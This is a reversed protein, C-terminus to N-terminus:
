IRWNSPNVVNDDDCAFEEFPFAPMEKKIELIIEELQRHNNVGVIIKDVEKLDYIFRLAAQVPSVGVEDLKNRYLILRPKIQKFYDPLIHPDMLLLGQLFASRVHIEINNRKLKGLYGNHILRQDLINIPLQIIDIEHKELIKDIQEGTYISIGIKEVLGRSKLENLKKFVLDSYSSQIDELRHILLGYVKNQKLRKLSESFYKEICIDYGQPNVSSLSPIKTIIEFHQMDRCSLGLSEESTGYAYATDITKVNNNAATELIRQIEALSTRGENNSIGYDMGFQATGLGIKM